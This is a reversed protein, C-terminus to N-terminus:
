IERPSVAITFVRCAISAFFMAVTSSETVLFGKRLTQHSNTASLTMVWSLRGLCVGCDFTGQDFKEQKTKRDFDLLFIKMDQAVKLSPSKADVLDFGREAAQQLHDIYVFVVQDRGCEEWLRRGDEALDLLTKTPIWSPTSSLTFVPPKTSPYGEVLDIELALSPLHSLLHADQTGDELPTDRREFTDGEKTSGDSGPPTPLTTSPPIGDTLPPFVVSIPPSPSVPLEISATYPTEPDLLLEPFIAVIASLEVRREDELAPDDDDKTVM